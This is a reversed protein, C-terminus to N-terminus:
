SSPNIVTAGRLGFGIIVRDRQSKSLIRKGSTDGTAIFALANDWAHRLVFLFDTRSIRDAVSCAIYGTTTSLYDNLHVYNSFLISFSTEKSRKSRRPFSSEFADVLVPSAEVM